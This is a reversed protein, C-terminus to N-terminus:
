RYSVNGQYFMAAHTHWPPISRPHVPCTKVDMLRLVSFGRKLFLNGPQCSRLFGPSDPSCTVGFLWWNQWFGRQWIDCLFINIDKINCLPYKQQMIGGIMAVIMHLCLVGRLFSSWYLVRCDKGPEEWESKFYVVCLVRCLDTIQLFGWTKLNNLSSKWAVPSNM